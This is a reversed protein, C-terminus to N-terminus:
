RMLIRFNEFCDVYFTILIQRKQKSLNECIIPRTNSVLKNLDKRLIASFRPENRIRAQSPGYGDNEIMHLPM